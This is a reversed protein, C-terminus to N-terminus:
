RKHCEACMMGVTARREMTTEKGTTKEGITTECDFQEWLDKGQRSSLIAFVPHGAEFM